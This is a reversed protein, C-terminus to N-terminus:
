SSSSIYVSSRGGILVHFYIVYILNRLNTDFLLLLRFTHEVFGVYISFSIFNPSYNLHFIVMMSKLTFRHILHQHCVDNVHPEITM